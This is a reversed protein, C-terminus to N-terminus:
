ISSGQPRSYEPSQRSIYWSPVRQRDLRVGRWCGQDGTARWFSVAQVYEPQGGRRAEELLDWWGGVQFSRATDDAEASRAEALKVSEALALALGEDQDSAVGHLAPAETAAVPAPTPPGGSSAPPVVGRAPRHLSESRALELALAADMAEQEARQARQAGRGTWDPLSWAAADILTQEPTRQPRADPAGPSSPQRTM